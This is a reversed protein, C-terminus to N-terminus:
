PTILSDWPGAEQRYGANDYAIAAQSLLAYMENKNYPSIQQYEWKKQGLAYPILWDLATRIGAGDKNRYNWLDVGANRGLTALAFFAQLNYTSYGLGNTRDLELPMRGDPRIQNEVLAKGEEALEKAKATNGAFLAFDTVQALYWTGHNNKAAHEDKGNRSNLMWDLYQKYWQRLAAADKEKWSSSGELLGAADAIGTLSISEIIGTGRGNNMGPVAQAYELNPNMRTSDDLFWHRLLVAAKEAYKEEGTLYWALSLTRLANDLEGVYRRDSITYIEPNREGDRRMYPLGNPKTSDYWFYPAQSMYDHKDGSMPKRSKETVSVPKRDLAKDAQDKLQGLLRTATTDGSAIKNKLEVLREADMLFVRPAAAAGAAGAAAHSGATTSGVAPSGAISHSQAQGLLPAYLAIIAVWQKIRM